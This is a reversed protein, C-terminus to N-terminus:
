ARPLAGRDLAHLGRSGGHLGAADACLAHLLRRSDLHLPLGLQAHRRNGRAPRFDAGGRHLRLAAFDAAQADAGRPQGDRALARPIALPRGLAALLEDDGQLIGLHLRGAGVAIGRGGAGGGPHVVRKGRRAAQIGGRRRGDQIRVPVSARLRVATRDKGKSAFLVEDKRKEVTHEARGYDFRPACEMRLAIEGRVVKVRRVLDHCHGLDSSRCSIPFRRWATM